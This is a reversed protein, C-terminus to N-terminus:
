NYPSNENAARATQLARRAAEAEAARKSPGSGEGMVRGACRVEIRYRRAHHPGEQALIRYEPLPQKNLQLWEQLAGKPNAAQLDSSAGTALPLALCKTFIKEVAALGGDTFAAGLLAEFADAMLSQRERGGSLIEGRGLRLHPGLAIAAAARQLAATDTLASRLRTLEGETADPFTKYLHAAALLGLAADGLYELRENHSIPPRQEHAFSSHTLALELLARRKFRYGLARELPAHPHKTM